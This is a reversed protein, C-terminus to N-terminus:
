ERKEKKKKKREEGSKKRERKKKKQEEKQEEEFCFRVWVLLCIFRLGGWGHGRKESRSAM